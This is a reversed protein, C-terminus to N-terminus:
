RRGSFHRDPRSRDTSLFGGRGSRLGCLAAPSRPLASGPVRLIMGSISGSISAVPLPCRAVPLPCRAVPLGFRRRKCQCHRREVAKRGWRQCNPGGRSRSGQGGHAGGGFIAPNPHASARHDIGAARIFAAYPFLAPHDQTRIARKRRPQRPPSIRGASEDPRPFSFSQEGGPRHSAACKRRDLPLAFLPDGGHLFDAEEGEAV